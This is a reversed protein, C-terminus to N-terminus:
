SLATRILHIVEEPDYRSHVEILTVGHEVCLEPRWTDRKQQRAFADAGGFREVPESQQLGQYEVVVHRLPFYIDLSQQGPWRPRGQHVIHEDPFAARLENLLAVESVWGEGVAKLGEADRLEDEPQRYLARLRATTSAGHTAERSLRPPVSTM